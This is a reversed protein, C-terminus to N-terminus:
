VPPVANTGEFQRYQIPAKLSTTSHCGPGILEFELGTPIRNLHGPGISEFDTPIRNLNGPGISEFELGNTKYAILGLM